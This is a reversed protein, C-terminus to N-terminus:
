FLLIRTPQTESRRITKCLTKPLIGSRFGVVDSEGLQTSGTSMAWRCNRLDVDDVFDVPTGLIM